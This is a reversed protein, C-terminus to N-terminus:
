LNLRLGIYIMRGFIPAYVQASDFNIGFPDDAAIIPNLQRFNGFNEVGSYVEFKNTFAYTIQSNWLGYSPSYSGEPDRITSM